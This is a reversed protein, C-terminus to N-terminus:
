GSSIMLSLTSRRRSTWSACISTSHNSISAHKTSWYEYIRSKTELGGVKDSDRRNTQLKQKPRWESGKWYSGFFFRAHMPFRLFQETTKVSNLIVKRQFHSQHPSRGNRQGSVLKGSQWVNETYEIWHQREQKSCNQQSMMLVQPKAVQQIVSRVLLRPVFHHLTKSGINKNLEMGKRMTTCTKVIGKGGSVDYGKWYWICRHDLQLLWVTFGSIIIIIIIIIIM